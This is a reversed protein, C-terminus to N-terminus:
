LKAIMHMVFRRALRASLPSGTAARVRHFVAQIQSSTMARGRRRFVPESLPPTGEAQYLEALALRLFSPMPIQRSFRKRQKFCVFDGQVDDWILDLVEVLRGGTGLFMLILAKDRTAHPNDDAEFFDAIKEIDLDPGPGFGPHGDLKKRDM